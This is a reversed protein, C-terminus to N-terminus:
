FTDKLFKKAEEKQIKIVNSTKNAFKVQYINEATDLLEPKFTSIIFQNNDSLNHILKCLNIRLSPDLAADIEDLIYFPPPDIKSLAFILAVAVATKQGGSLQHMSQSSSELNGSFSVSIQISKNEHNLQLTGEGKPVLEKFFFSFSSKVKTFTTQIANEKKEDLVKIVDLIEKEKEDLDELKEEIEDRKSKFLKYDDIAFRNIKEFKKMNNTIKELKQYIPQLIREQKMEQERVNIGSENSVAKMANEKLKKIKETEEPSVNGLGAILKLLNNKKETKENLNLVIGKLEGECQNVRENNKNNETNLISIENNLSDIQSELQILENNYKNVANQYVLIEKQIMDISASNDAENVTETNNTSLELNNLANKLEIEKKIIENDLTAEIEMKEKLYTDRNKTMEFIRQELSSIENLIMSQTQSSNQTNINIKNNLIDNYVNIKQEIENKQLILKELANKQSTCIQGINAINVMFTNREKSLNEIKSNIESRERFLDQQDRIIQTERDLLNKKSKNLDEIKINLINLNENSETFKEYLGDRQRNYNYMGMKALYGGGQIIENDSTVCTMHFQKALKMGTEYNRVLMCNGFNKQLLKQIKNTDIEPYEDTFKKKITIFNLLPVADSFSSTNANTKIKSDLFELPIITLAPYKEQKIVELVSQATSMSDVILSYLKNGLILDVANKAKKDTELLDLFIGYVGPLKMNKIKTVSKFVDFNPFSLEINKIQETLQTIDENIENTDIDTKKIENVLDRRKNKSEILENNISKFKENLNQISIDIQTIQETLQKSSKNSKNIENQMDVISNDISKKLTTLKQIESSLFAKRESPSKLLIYESKGKQENYKTQFSSIDNNLENIKSELIKLKNTLKNKETNNKVLDLNIQNVSQHYSNKTDNLYKINRESQYKLGEISIIESNCREIKGRIANVMKNLKAISTLKENIKQKFKTQANTLLQLDGIQDKKREELFECSIQFQTLQENLIFAEYAKRKNELNEFESLDVCQSELRNIYESIEEKQKIIRERNDKSEELLKLSEGKKEEYTKTGTVDAFIEYYEYDSMNIMANIKGQQIIYYPNTKSFGASELLNSADAKLLKKQNILLEERNEKANYIKMISVTDKDVPFRRSKNDLVLEITIIEADDGKDDPEEHLLLKKEEQRLNQYKDTLVFIIADLFNSKGNGNAGIIANVGNSLPEM